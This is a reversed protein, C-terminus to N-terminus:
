RVAYELTVTPVVRATLGTDTVAWALHGGLVVTGAVNWKVGAIARTLTTGSDGAILRLTEVGAITPHPASALLISHLEAVHRVLLEGSVTVRSHPAYSAAGALMAEDSIGGRVIGGNGHLSFAGRDLSAVALARWATAGAGLLNRDDGTPLRVEGAAALGAGHGSFLTYKGRIAMDALGSAVGSGSAQVFQQGRYVNVRSGDITLRVFPVAAGIELRDTVGISGLLTMTSSRLRLTLSETDFPAPEDRFQNAITMLTGDTLNYAGLRDFSATTASVGLSAHGRGPTLAREVFFGGFSNTAREVTGLQPNLRYLFGSSSTAIPMSTLNVLLARTLTDSAQAAADRDREFDSTRVAQNTMLFGIVDSLTSQARAPTSAILVLVVAQLARRVLIPLMM